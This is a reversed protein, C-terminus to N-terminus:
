QLRSGHCPAAWATASAALFMIAQPATGSPIVSQRFKPFGSFGSTNQCNLFATSPIAAAQLASSTGTVPPLTLKKLSDWPTATWGVGATPITPRISSRRFTVVDPKLRSPSRMAIKPSVLGSIPALSYRAFTCPISPPHTGLMSRSVSCAKSLKTEPRWEFSSREDHLPRESPPRATPRASAHMDPLM